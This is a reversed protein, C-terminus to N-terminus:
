EKKDGSMLSSILSYGGSIVAGAVAGGLPGGGLSAALTTLASTEILGGFYGMAAGGAGLVTGGILAGKGASKGADKGRAGGLLFGGLAGGAAGVVGLAAGTVVASAVAMATPSLGIAIVAAGGIAGLASDMAVKGITSKRIKSVSDFMHKVVSKKEKKGSSLSIKDQPMTAKKKVAGKKPPAMTTNLNNASVNSITM